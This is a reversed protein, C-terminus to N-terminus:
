PCKLYHSFISVVYLYKHLKRFNLSKIVRDFSGDAYSMRDYPASDKAVSAGLSELCSFTDTAQWILEPSSADSRRGSKSNRGHRGIIPTADFRSSSPRNPDVPLHENVVPMQFSQKKQNELIAAFSM